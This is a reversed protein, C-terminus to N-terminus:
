SSSSHNMDAFSYLSHQTVPFARHCPKGTLQIAVPLVHIVYELTLADVGRQKLAYGYYKFVVEEAVQGVMHIGATVFLIRCLHREKHYM